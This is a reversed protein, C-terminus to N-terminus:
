TNYSRTLLKKIEFFHDRTGLKWSLPTNFYQVDIGPRDCQRQMSDIMFGGAATVTLYSQIRKDAPTTKYHEYTRGPYKTLALIPWDETSEGLMAHMRCELLQAAATRAYDNKLFVAYLNDAAKRISKDLAQLILDRVFLSPLHFSAESRLPEPFDDSPSPVYLVLVRHTLHKLHFNFSPAKVLIEILKDYTM